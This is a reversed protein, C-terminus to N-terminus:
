LLIGNSFYNISKLFFQNFEKKILSKVYFLWDKQEKILIVSQKQRMSFVFSFWTKEFCKFFVLHLEIPQLSLDVLYIQINV